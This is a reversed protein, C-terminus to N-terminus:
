VSNVMTKMLGAIIKYHFGAHINSIVYDMEIAKEVRCLVM